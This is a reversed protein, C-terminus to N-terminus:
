AAARAVLYRFRDDARVEAPVIGQLDLAALHAIAQSWATAESDDLPRAHGACLLPDRHGCPLQPLLAAAAARRRVQSPIDSRAAIIDM